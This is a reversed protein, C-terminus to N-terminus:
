GRLSALCRGLQRPNSSPEPSGAPKASRRAIRFESCCLYRDRAIVTPRAPLLWSPRGQEMAASREAESPPDPEDPALLEVRRMIIEVVGDGRNPVVPYGEGHGYIVWAVVQEIWV